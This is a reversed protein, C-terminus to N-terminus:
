SCCCVRQLLRLTLETTMDQMEMWLIVFKVHAPRRLIIDLNANNENQNEDENENEQGGGIAMGIRFGSRKLRVQQLEIM